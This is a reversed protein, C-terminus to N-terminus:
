ELVALEIGDRGNHAGNYLMWRKGGSDVIAPYEATEDMEFTNTMYPNISSVEEDKRRWELGDKSEAYGMRYSPWANGRISYWMKYLGNEKIVWPRGVAYDPPDPTICLDRPFGPEFPRARIINNNYHGNSWHSTGWYWMDRGLWCPAGCSLPEQKRSIFPGDKDWVGGDDYCTAAGIYLMYPTSECRQFGIYYMTLFGHDVVCSPVVGDCDFSGLPGPRLVPEPSVYKVKTLDNGDLDVFGISGRNNADLSAYYVRVTDGMVLPTPVHAYANVAWEKSTDPRHILGLKRWNQMTM